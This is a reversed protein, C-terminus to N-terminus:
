KCAAQQHGAEAAVDGGAAVEDQVAATVVVPSTTGPTEGTDGPGLRRRM